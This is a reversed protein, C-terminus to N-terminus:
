DEGTRCRSWPRARIGRAQLHLPRDNFARLPGRRGSGPGLRLAAAAPAATAAGGERAGCVPRALDGAAPAPEGLEKSAGAGRGLDGELPAAERPLGPVSRRAARPGRPSGGGSCSGERVQPLRREDGRGRSSGEGPSSGSCSADRRSSCRGPREKPCEWSTEWKATRSARWRSSFSRRAGGRISIESAPKSRFAFRITRPRLPSFRDFAIAQEDAEVAGGHDWVEFEIFGGNRRIRLTAGANAARLRANDLLTSIMSGAYEPDALLETDRSGDDAELAVITGRHRALAIAEDALTGAQMPVPALYLVNADLAYVTLLDDVIRALDAAAEKIRQPAESLTEADQRLELLDAYGAILALPSRLGNSLRALAEAAPAVPDSM